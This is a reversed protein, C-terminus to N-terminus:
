CKVSCLFLCSSFDYVDFNCNFRIIYNIILLIYMKIFRFFVDFVMFEEKWKKVNVNKVNLVLNLDVVKKLYIYM